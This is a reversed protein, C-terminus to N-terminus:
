VEVEWSRGTKKRAFGSFYLTVEEETMLMDEIHWHNAKSGKLLWEYVTKTQLEPRIRYCGHEDWTPNLDDVYGKGSEGALKEIKAGKKWAKILDNHPHLRYDLKEDWSPTADAAWDNKKKESVLGNGHIRQITATM